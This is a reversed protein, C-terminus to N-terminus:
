FALNLRFAFHRLPPATNFEGQNFNAGGGQENIEPDLGTYDTWTALNRGSLTLSSGDLFPAQRTLAEPAFLTLAVERWKIFDAPEVFGFSSGFFRNAIHRAQMELPANPDGTAACHGRTLRAAGVNCAFASSFNSQYHGARRDFLTSIRVNRFLTLDLSLSQSNTPLVGGIFEATDSSLVVEAPALLNNGDADSFTYPRQFYAGAPYGEQHRQLGRNIIIPEVGVGLAEIRNSLTSNSLRANLSLNQVEFLRASLSAETGQNRVAGLNDFVSATLGFSPALRRSILADKSLKNFYTFDLSIRDEFLGADFGFEWETSREPKLQLNGTTNLTVASLDNGAVTVSVPALTTVAQRFNPRLGSQGYASRLRLSALLPMTPFFEEESVVWSLSASPYTVLGFDAGFASNDDGRISGALFIRDNIALQQQFFAGITRTETFFEDVSFLSSTSSCSQTGEVVGVGFCSVNTFRERNFSAGATTTSVLNNRPQFTGTASANSTFILNTNAVASRQGPTFTAAIPLRGPQLTRTDLRSFWDLGLNLNTTLWARPTFNVNSGIIYRDLDQNVLYHEFDQNYYGFGAGPRTGPRSADLQEQTPEFASALFGNILPSFISNDSSNLALGSNIYNSSVAVRLSNTLQGDLNARLSLRDLTNFSIAGQEDEWDASLYFTAGERGGSSSVGYKNRHGTTFPGQPSAFYNRRITEDQRCLGRAANENPCATYGATNLNTGNLTLPLTADNVQYSLFTDEYATKDELIGVESYARFRSPGARGRRTTILVVGNAAATGYLASAAPGKLIEFSEIDDQNLDNLRSVDQGGTGLSVGKSNSALVGDIFILPENSLSLSNAGRIRIRQSGGVTGTVSQLQVGPVRATLATSVSTIPMNELEASTITGTNTGLERRRATQGTVASVVVAELTIATPRLELNATATGGPTVQVVVESAAFGLSQVRITREGAPVNPITFRGEQTTMTGLQTGAVRVQVSPLPRRTNQEVVLGTVTGREQAALAAPLVLLGIGATLLKRFSMM